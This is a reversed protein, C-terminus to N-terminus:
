PVELSASIGPCHAKRVAVEDEERYLFDETICQAVTAQAFYM